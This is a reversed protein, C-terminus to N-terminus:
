SRSPASGFGTSGTIASSPRPFLTPCRPHAGVLKAVPHRADEADPAVDDRSCPHSGASAGHLVAATVCAAVTTALLIAFAVGAGIGSPRLCWAVVVIVPHHVLYAPFVAAALVARWRHDRRWRRDAVALLLVITAWAMAVQAGREAAAIGHPPVRTGPYALEVAVILARRRLSRCRGERTAISRPGYNPHGRLRSASCSCRLTSPMARWDRLLEHREPVLFMLVVRAGALGAIPLWLLRGDALLRELGAQWRMPPPALALLMSYAWLYVVFWLHEVGSIGGAGGAGPELRRGALFARALGPLGGRAGAGM